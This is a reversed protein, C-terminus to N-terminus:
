QKMLHLECDRSVNFFITEMQFHFYVLLHLVTASYVFFCYRGRLASHTTKEYHM